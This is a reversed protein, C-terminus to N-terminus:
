DTTQRWARARRDAEAIQDATMKASVRARAQPVLVAAVGSGAGSAVEYWKRAEVLDIAVDELGYEYVAGLVIQAEARGRAAAARLWRMMEATDRPFVLGAFQIYALDYAADLNGREAARRFWAASQEYSKTAGKADQYLEGLPLQAAVDGAEALPLLESVDVAYDGRAAAAEAEAPGAAARAAVGAILATAFFLRIM